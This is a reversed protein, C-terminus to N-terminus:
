RYLRKTVLTSATTVGANTSRFIQYSAFDPNRLHFDSPKTWSVTVSTSTVNTGPNLVVAEPPFLWAIARHATLRCGQVNPTGAPACGFGLRKSRETPSPAYIPDASKILIDKVRAPSMVIGPNYKQYEPELAMLIAAVGSVMPAAASSDSFLSYDHFDLPQAADYYTPSFVGVGPAAISVPLGFNSTYYRQDLVCGGQPVNYCVTSAGVTIVNPLAGLSGPASSTALSASDGAAAVFLTGANDTFKPLLLRETASTM